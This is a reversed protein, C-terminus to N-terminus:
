PVTGYFESISLIKKRFEVAAMAERRPLLRKSMESAAGNLM